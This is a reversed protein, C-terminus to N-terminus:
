ILVTSLIRRTLRSPTTVALVRDTTRMVRCSTNASYGGSPGTLLQTLMDCSSRIFPRCRGFGTGLAHEVIREMASVSIKLRGTSLGFV